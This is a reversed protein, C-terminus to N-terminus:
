VRLLFEHQVKGIAKEWYYSIKIPRELLITVCQDKKM